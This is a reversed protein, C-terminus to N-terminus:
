SVGERVSERLFIKARARETERESVRTDRPYGPIETPSRESVKPISQSLKHIIEWNPSVLGHRLPAMKTLERYRPWNM